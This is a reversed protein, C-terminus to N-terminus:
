RGVPGSNKQLMLGVREKLTTDGPGDDGWENRMQERVYRCADAQGQWDLDPHGRRPVGGHHKCGQELVLQVAWWDYKAPRGGSRKAAAAPKAGDEVTAALPKVEGELFARIEEPVLWRESPKSLLWLATARSHVYATVIDYQFQRPATKDPIVSSPDM